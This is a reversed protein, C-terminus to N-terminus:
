RKVQAEKINFPTQAERILHELMLVIADLDDEGQWLRRSYYEKWWSLPQSM